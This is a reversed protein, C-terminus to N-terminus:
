FFMCKFPFAIRPSRGLFDDVGGRSYAVATTDIKSGIISLMLDRLRSPDVRFWWTHSPQLGHSPTIAPFTNYACKAAFWDAYCCYVVISRIVARRRVIGHSIIKNKIGFFRRGVWSGSAKDRHDAFDTGKWKDALPFVVRIRKKKWGIGM